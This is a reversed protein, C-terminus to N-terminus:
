DPHTRVAAAYSRQMKVYKAKCPQMCRDSNAHLQKVCQMRFRATLVRQMIYLNRWRTNDVCIAKTFSRLATALHTRDVADLM